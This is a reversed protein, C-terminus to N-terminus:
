VKETTSTAEKITTTAETTTSETTQGARELERVRADYADEYDNVQAVPAADLVTKDSIWHLIDVENLDELAKRYRSAIRELLTLDQKIHKMEVVVEPALRWGFDQGQTINPSHDSSSWLAAIKPETDAVAEENSRINLFKIAM